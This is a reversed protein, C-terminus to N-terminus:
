VDVIVSRVWKDFCKQMYAQAEELTEFSKSKIDGAWTMPGASYKLKNDWLSIKIYHDFVKAHWSGRLQKLFISDDKDPASYHWELPKIKM